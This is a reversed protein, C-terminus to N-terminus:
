GLLGAIPGTVKQGRRNPAGEGGRPGAWRGRGGALALKQGTGM